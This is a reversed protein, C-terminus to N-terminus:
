VQAFIEEALVRRTYLNPWGERSRGCLTSRGRLDRPGAPQRVRKGGHYLDGEIGGGGPERHRQDNAWTRGYAGSWYSGSPAMWQDPRM